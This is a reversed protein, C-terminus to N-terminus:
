SNNKRAQIYYFGKEDIFTEIGFWGDTIMQRMDTEDPLHDHMVAHCSKHHSNIGDSSDFHSIALLGQPKLVRGLTEIAKPKDQFHPFCSFCIAIDCSEHALPAHEVGAVIFRVNVEHHLKRNTEIMKEAFDLEYLTGAEGIADLVYPVLVGTGCGTDLVCDGKALPILSFLRQFDKEHKKQEGTEPDRYWMDIWKEASENFFQKRASYIEDATMKM